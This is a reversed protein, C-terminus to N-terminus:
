RLWQMIAALHLFSIYNLASKEYRTAIRRYHKIRNFFREVQNREKYLNEDYNRAQKRNKRSPIVPEAELAEISAVLADSDYGKDALIAQIQARDEASLCVQELLPEAQTIEHRQGPTVRFALPNGLADTVVHIKSSFGGRSRGLAETQADSKKSWGFASSGARHQLRAHAM